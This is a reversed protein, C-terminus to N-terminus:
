GLWKSATGDRQITVVGADQTLKRRRAIVNTPSTVSASATLKLSSSRHRGSGVTQRCRSQRGLVTQLASAVDNRSTM